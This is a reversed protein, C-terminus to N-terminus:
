TAYDTSVQPIEGQVLWYGRRLKRQILRRALQQAEALSGCPTVRHCQHGGIRGWLRSVVYPDLLGPGAMVLYFRAVNKEPDIRHLLCM